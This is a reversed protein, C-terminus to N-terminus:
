DNFKNYSEANNNINKFKLKSLSSKFYSSKFNNIKYKM